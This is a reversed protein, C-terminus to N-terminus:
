GLRWRPPLRRSQPLWPDLEDLEFRCLGIRQWLVDSVDGSTKYGGEPTIVAWGRGTGMLSAALRGEEVDFLDLTGS